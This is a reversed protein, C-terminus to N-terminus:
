IFLNSIAGGCIVQATPKYLIATMPTFENIQAEVGNV